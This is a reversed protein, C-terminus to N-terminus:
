LDRKRALLLGCFLWFLYNSFYFETVNSGIMQIAVGLPIWSLYKELETKAKLRATLILALAFTLFVISFVGSESVIRFYDGDSVGHEANLGQSVAVLGVQGLGLGLPNSQINNIAGLWM